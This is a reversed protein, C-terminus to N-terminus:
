TNKIELATKVSNMDVYLRVHNLLPQGIEYRKPESSTPDISTRDQITDHTDRDKEAQEAKESTVAILPYTYPFQLLLRNKSDFLQLEPQKSDSVFYLYATHVSPKESKDLRNEYPGGHLHKRKGPIWDAEVRNIIGEATHYSVASGCLELLREVEPHEHDPCTKVDSEQM